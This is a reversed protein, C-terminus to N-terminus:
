ENLFEGEQILKSIIPAAASGGSNGAKGHAHSVWSAFAVKRSTKQKPEKWGIFWTAYYRGGSGAVDATGTKGYVFERRPNGKFAKYATGYQSRIVQAMGERLFTMTKKALNLERVDKTETKKGDIAAVLVPSVVQSTAVAAAVRAMNLPTM